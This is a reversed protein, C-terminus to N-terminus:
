SSQAQDIETNNPPYVLRFSKTAGDGLFSRLVWIKKPRDSYDPQTGPFAILLEANDKGHTIEIQPYELAVEDPFLFPPIAAIRQAIRYIDFSQLHGETSAKPEEIGLMELITDSLLESLIYVWCFHFRLDRAFSFAVEDSKHVTKNPALVGDEGMAEIFYGPIFHNEDFLVIPTIEGRKHKINNVAKAIHDQYDKSKARFQRFFKDEKRENQTEFFCQLVNECDDIHELLFYMLLRQAMSLEIHWYTEKTDLLVKTALVEELVSLVRNFGYLINRFSVNYIGLPHRLQHQVFYLPDTFDSSLVHMARPALGGAQISHRRIIM